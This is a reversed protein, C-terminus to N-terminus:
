KNINTKEIFLGLKYANFCCLSSKSGGLLHRRLCRKTCRFLSRAPRVLRLRRLREYAALLRVSTCFSPNDQMFAYIAALNDVAEETKALFEDNTEVGSNVAPNDIHLVPIAHQQLRYGFLTDEHGYGNIRTDFGISQLVDRRIMFNGTMFSRYPSCSRVSAPRSEVHRGYRYRLAHRKDYQGANYAVGGVVVSPSKTLTDAYAKLFGDGVIMDNDLFLLYDGHTHELFLNRIRARGINEELQIYTGFSAIPQNQKRYSESSCDDICVLEVDTDLACAQETLTRVLPCVNHNYVPICISIM